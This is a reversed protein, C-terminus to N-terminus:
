ALAGLHSTENYAAASAMKTHNWAWLGAASSTTRLVTDIVASVRTGDREVRASM